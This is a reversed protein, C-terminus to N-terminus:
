CQRARVSMATLQRRPQRRLDGTTQCEFAEATGCYKTSECGRDTFGPLGLQVSWAILLFPLSGFFGVSFWGSAAIIMGHFRGPAEADKFRRHLLWGIRLPIVASVLLAPLAYYEGWVIPVAISVLMLGGLAELIRGIDRGVTAVSGNM